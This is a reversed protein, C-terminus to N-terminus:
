RLSKVKSGGRVGKKTESAYKKFPNLLETKKKNPSKVAKIERVCENIFTQTLSYYNLLVRIAGKVDDRERFKQQVRADFTVFGGEGVFSITAVVCYTNGKGEGNVKKELQRCTAPISLTGRIDARSPHAVGSSKTYCVDYRGKSYASQLKVNEVKSFAINADDKSGVTVMAGDGVSQQIAADLSAFDVLGVESNNDGEGDEYEDVSNDGLLFGIVKETKTENISVSSRFCLDLVLRKANDKPDTILGKSDFRVSAITFDGNKPDDGSLPPPTYTTHLAYCSRGLWNYVIKTGRPLQPPAIEIVPTQQHPMDTSLVFPKLPISMNVRHGTVNVLQNASGTSLRVMKDKLFRASIVATSIDLFGTTQAKHLCDQGIRLTNNKATLSLTTPVLSLTRVSLITVGVLSQGNPGVYPTGILIRTMKPIVCKAFGVGAAYKITYMTGWWYCSLLFYLGYLVNDILREDIGLLSSSLTKFTLARKYATSLVHVVFIFYM